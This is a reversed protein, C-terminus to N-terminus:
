IRLQEAPEESTIYVQQVASQQTDFDLRAGTCAAGELCLSGPSLVICKGSPRTISGYLHVKDLEIGHLNGEYRRLAEM